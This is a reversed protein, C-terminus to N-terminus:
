PTIQSVTYDPNYIIKKTAVNKFGGGPVKEFEFATQLLSEKPLREMRLFADGCHSLLKIFYYTLDYGQFSYPTPEMNILARYRKLFERVNNSNYDVFFPLSLHLHMKHFEEPEITEFNRWKSLGLLTIDRKMNMCLHLNRVVDNVFAENNSAVFFVYKRLSDMMTMMKENITRGELINYSLERHRANASDLYWKARQVANAADHGKEYVLIIDTNPDNCYEKLMAVSNRMQEENGTPAQIYCSRGTLCSEANQDMPSVIPIELMQALDASEMLASSLVPGIILQNRKFGYSFFIDRISNYSNQDYINLTVKIGSARLDAAALLAGTYFDFYQSNYGKDSASTLPLILALEVDRQEEKAVPEVNISEETVTQQQQPFLLREHLSEKEPAVPENQLPEKVRDPNRLWVPILLVQKKALEPSQLNNYEMIEERTLDYKEAIADIDEYWKVIHRRPKQRKGAKKYLEEAKKDQSETDQVAKEERVPIYLVEGAKLGNEANENQKVIEEITVNYAKSLSYLTEGKKVNHLYYVGEKGGIKIKETSITVPIQASTHVSFLLLLALTSLPKM